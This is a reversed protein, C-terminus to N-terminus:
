VDYLFAVSEWWASWLTKKQREVGIQGGDAGVVISHFNIGTRQWCRHRLGIKNDEAFGGRLAVHYETVELGCCLVLLNFM